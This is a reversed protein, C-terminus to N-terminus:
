PPTPQGNPKPDLSRSDSEPEPLQNRVVTIAATKADEVLMLVTGALMRHLVERAALEGRVANTQVGRVKTVVYVIEVGSQEVFLRLTKSADGEALDYYRKTAPAAERAASVLAALAVFIALQRGATFSRAVNSSFPLSPIV